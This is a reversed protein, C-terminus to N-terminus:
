PESSRIQELFERVRPQDPTLELSRTLTRVAAERNGLALETEGLANLLGVDEGAIGIAERYADAAEQFHAQRFQALGLLSLADVNKPERAIAERASREGDEPHGGLIEARAKGLRAPQYYPEYDLAVRFLKVADDFRDAALYQHAQRFLKEAPRLEPALGVTSLRGMEQSAGLTFDVRTLETFSSRTETVLAELSYDGPLLTPGSIVKLVDIIDRRDVRSRFRNTEDLVTEEGRKLTFRVSVEPDNAALEPPCYVEMFALVRQAAGFRESPKPYLRLHGFQFPLASSSSAAEDAKFATVFSSM